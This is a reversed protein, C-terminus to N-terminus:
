ATLGKTYNVLFNDVLNIASRAGTRDLKGKVSLVCIGHIGSWLVNLTDKVENSGFSMESRVLETYDEYFKDIAEQYWKPVVMDEPFRYEFVMSWLNFNNEAFSIYAEGISKLKAVGKGKASRKIQEGLAKLTRTNLHMFIDDLNQFVNYLTGVTYGIEAAIKRTSLKAYGQTALMEYAAELIMGKLEEFSHDGRRGM